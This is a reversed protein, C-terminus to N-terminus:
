ATESKPVAIVRKLLREFQGFEDHGSDPEPSKSDDTM